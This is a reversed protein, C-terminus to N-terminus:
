EIYGLREKWEQLYPTKLNIVLIGLLAIEITLLLSISVIIVNFLKNDQILGSSFFLLLLPSITLIALSVLIYKLYKLPFIKAM